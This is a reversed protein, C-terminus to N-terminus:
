EKVFNNKILMTNKTFLHNEAILNKFKKADTHELFKEAHEEFPTISIYECVSCNALYFKRGNIMLQVTYYIRSVDIEDIEFGVFDPNDHIFKEYANVFKETKKLKSNELAKKFNKILSELHSREFYLECEEESCGCDLRMNLYSQFFKGNHIVKLHYATAM